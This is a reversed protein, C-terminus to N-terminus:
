ESKSRLFVLRGSCAVKGTDVVGLHLETSSSGGIQVRQIDIGHVVVNKTNHRTHSTKSIGILFLLLKGILRPLSTIMIILM